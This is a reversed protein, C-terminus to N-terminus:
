VYLQGKLDWLALLSSRLVSELKLSGSIIYYLGITITTRGKPIVIVNCFFTYIYLIKLENLRGNDIDM